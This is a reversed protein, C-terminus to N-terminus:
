GEDGDEGSASADSGESEQGDASHDIALDEGASLRLLEEAHLMAAPDTLVAETLVVKHEESVERQEISAAALNRLQLGLEALRKIDIPELTEPHIHQLGAAAKELAMLGFSYLKQDFAELSTAVDQDVAELRTTRTTVTRTATASRQKGTLKGLKKEAREKRKRARDYARQKEPDKFPM